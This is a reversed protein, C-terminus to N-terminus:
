EWIINLDFLKKRCWELSDESGEKHARKIEEWFCDVTLDFDGLRSDNRFRIPHHPQYLELYARLFQQFTPLKKPM